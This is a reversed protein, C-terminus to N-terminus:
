FFGCSYQHLKNLHVLHPSSGGRKSSPSQNFITYSSGVYLCLLLFRGFINCIYKGEWVVETVMGAASGGDTGGSGVVAGSASNPVRTERGDRGLIMEEGCDIM